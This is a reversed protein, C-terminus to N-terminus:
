VAEWGITVGGLSIPNIASSARFDEDLLNCRLYITQAAPVAVEVAIHRATSNAAWVSGDWWSAVGDLLTTYRDDAGLAIYNWGTYEDWKAIQGERGIWVGTAPSTIWYTAWAAPSGPPATASTTSTALPPFEVSGQGSITDIAFADTLSVALEWAMRDFAGSTPALRVWVRWTGASPIAVSGFLYGLASPTLDGSAIATGATVIVKTTKAVTQALWTGNLAADLGSYYGSFRKGSRVLVARQPHIKFENEGLTANASSGVPPVIQWVATADAVFSIFRAQTSASSITWSTSLSGAAVHRTGGTASISGLASALYGGPADIGSLGATHFHVPIDIRPSLAARMDILFQGFDGGAITADVQFRVGLEATMTRTAPIINALDYYEGAVFAKVDREDVLVGDLYIGVLISNVTMDVAATKQVCSVRCNRWGPGNARVLIGTDILYTQPGAVFAEFSGVNVGWCRTGLSPTWYGIKRLENAIMAAIPPRLDPWTTATPSGQLAYDLMWDPCGFARRCSRSTSTLAQVSDGTLAWERSYPQNRLSHEGFFLTFPSAWAPKQVGTDYTRQWDGETRATFDAHLSTPVIPGSTLHANSSWMDAARPPTGTWSSSIILIFEDYLPLGGGSTLNTITNPVTLIDDVYIDQFFGNAGDVSLTYLTVAPTTGTWDSARSITITGTTGAPIGGILARLGVWHRESGLYSTSAVGGSVFRVRRYAGYLSTGAQVQVYGSAPFDVGADDCTMLIPRCKPMGGLRSASPSDGPTSLRDSSFTQQGLIDYVHGATIDYGPVAGFQRASDLRDRPDTPLTAGRVCMARDALDGITV